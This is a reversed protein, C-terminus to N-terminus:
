SSANCRSRDGNSSAAWVINIIGSRNWKKKVPTFTISNVLAVVLWIYSGVARPQAYPRTFANPRGVFNRARAAAGAVTRPGRRGASALSVPTLGTGTVAGAVCSVPEAMAATGALPSEQAYMLEPVQDSIPTSSG